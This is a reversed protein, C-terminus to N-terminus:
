WAKLEGTLPEVLDKLTVLGVPKRSEQQVVIAMTRHGLRMIRMAELVKTEPTFEVTPRTLERISREPNLVAEVLSMIGLVNRDDGIVPVRTFNHRRAIAELASRSADVSIVTVRPWPVAESAITLDRMALARDALSTQSESLVGAGVGEKILQSMRQRATVAGDGRIRLVRSVGATVLQVIPLLVIVTFLLRILPLVWSLAYTWRDTHTRFLDKPLTEAFVFLLPTFILAEVVILTWDSLGGGHLFSALGYSGLYSAANTGILLMTLTRNSARLNRRLRMAAAEGRAARIILRVPNLTYLGTEMGAFLGTFALGIFAIALYLTAEEVTM